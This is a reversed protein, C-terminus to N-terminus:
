ERVDGEGASSSEKFQFFRLDKITIFLFKIQRPNVLNLIPRDGDHAM